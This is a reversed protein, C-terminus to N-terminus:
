SSSCSIVKSVKIPSDPFQGQCLSAQHVMAHVTLSNYINIFFAKRKNESFKVTNLYKLKAVEQCYESFEASTSM